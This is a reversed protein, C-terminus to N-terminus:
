GPQPSTPSVSTPLVYPADYTATTKTIFALAAREHLVVRQIATDNWRNQLRLCSTIEQIITGIFAQKM